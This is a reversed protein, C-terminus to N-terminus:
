DKRLYRVIDDFEKEASKLYSAQNRKMDARGENNLFTLNEASFKTLSFLSEKLVADAGKMNKLVKDRLNNEWDLFAYGNVDGYLEQVAELFSTKQALLRDGLQKRQAPTVGKLGKELAAMPGEKPGEKGEGTKKGSGCCDKKKSGVQLSAGPATLCLLSFSAGALVSKKAKISFM